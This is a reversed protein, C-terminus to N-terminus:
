EKPRERRVICLGSEALPKPEFAAGVGEAARTANHVEFLDPLTVTPVPKLGDIKPRKRRTFLDGRHAIGTHQRTRMPGSQHMGHPKSFVRRNDLAKRRFVVIGRDEFYASQQPM